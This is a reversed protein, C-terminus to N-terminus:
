GENANCLILFISLHVAILIECNKDVIAGELLGTQNKHPGRNVRPCRHLGVPRFHFHLHDTEQTAAM